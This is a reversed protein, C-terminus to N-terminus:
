TAGDALSAIARRIADLAARGADAMGRTSMAQMAIGGQRRLERILVADTRAVVVRGALRDRALAALTLGAAAAQEDLAAYEGPTLRM